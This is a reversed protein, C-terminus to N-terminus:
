CFSCDNGRTGLRWSNANFLRYLMSRPHCTLCSSKAMGAYLESPLLAKTRWCVAPVTARRSQVFFQQVDPYRYSYAGRGHLRWYKIKGYSSRAEFPDVCHILDYEACLDGIADDTWTEGRPEWAVRFEDRDLRRFFASFSILFRAPRGSRSPVNFCCSAPM